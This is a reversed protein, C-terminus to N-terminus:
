SGTQSLDSTSPQLIESCGTHDLCPLHLFLTHLFSISPLLRHNYTYEIVRSRLSSLPCYLLRVISLLTVPRSLLPHITVIPSQYTM